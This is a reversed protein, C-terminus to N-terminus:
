HKSVIIKKEKQFDCFLDHYFENLYVRLIRYKLIIFFKNYFASTINM